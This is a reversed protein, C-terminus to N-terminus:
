LSIEKVSVKNLIMYLKVNIFEASINLVPKGTATVCFHPSQDGM